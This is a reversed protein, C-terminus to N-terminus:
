RNLPLPIFQGGSDPRYVSIDAHGSSFGIIWHTGWPLADAADRASPTSLGNPHSHFFGVINRQNKQAEYFLAIWDEPHLSFSDLPSFSSNRALAFDLPLAIGFDAAASDGFLVGCAEFPLRTRCAAIMRQGLEENLQASTWYPM